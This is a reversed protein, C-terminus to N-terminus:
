FVEGFLNRQVLHGRNGHTPPAKRDAFSQAKQDPSPGDNEEQGM